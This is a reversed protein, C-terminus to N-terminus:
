DQANARNPLDDYHIKHTELIGISRKISEITNLTDSFATILKSLDNLAKEVIVDDTQLRSAVDTLARQANTLVIPQKM